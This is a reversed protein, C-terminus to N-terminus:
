GHNGDKSNVLQEIAEILASPEVPKSLHMQFGSALARQRDKDTAFATLAVAPIRSTASPLARIKEILDYGSEVPLGIDSLLVHPKFLHLDILAQQVSDVAQVEAGSVRLTFTLLDRADPEDEVLLVRLGNLKSNGDRASAVNVVSPARHIALPIRLTFTAGQGEGDSAADVTGGHLETLHRVIALGLGLGRHSRTLASEAQRFREFVRPLFDADIGIGTDRVEVEASSEFRRLSITVHGDRPTFKVSNSLLNWIIQQLRASDAAVPGVGADASVELSVGRANAAPRVIDIAASIVTVLDVPEIDLKLKGGAIRSVDVLDEILQAQAEANREVTALAHKSTEADLRGSRLMSLWGLMATLPTRLEHSLTALFEDKLRNAEEAETRAAQERSL